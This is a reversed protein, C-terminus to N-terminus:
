VDKELSRTLGKDEFTSIDDDSCRRVWRTDEDKVFVSEARARCVEFGEERLTPILMCM